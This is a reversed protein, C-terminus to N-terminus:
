CFLFSLSLSFWGYISFSFSCWLPNYLIIVDLVKKKRELLCNTLLFFTIWLLLFYQIISKKLIGWCFFFFSFFFGVEVVVIEMNLFFFFLLLLPRELYSICSLLLGRLFGFHIFKASGRKSLTRVSQKMEVFPHIEKYFYNWGWSEHLLCAKPALNFRCNFVM